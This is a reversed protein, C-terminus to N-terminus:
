FSFLVGSSGLIGLSSVVGLSLIFGILAFVNTGTKNIATNNNVPNNVSNQVVNQNIAQADIKVNEKQENLKVESALAVNETKESNEQEVKNGCKACFKAGDNLKNGCNKCYM